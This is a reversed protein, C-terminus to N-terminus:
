CGVDDQNPYGIIKGLPDLFCASPCRPCGLRVTPAL